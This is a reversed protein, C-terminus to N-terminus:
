TCAISTVYILVVTNNIFVFVSVLYTFTRAFNRMLV